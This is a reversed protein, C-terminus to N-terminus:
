VGLPRAWSMAARAEWAVVEKARLLGTKCPARADDFTAAAMLGM